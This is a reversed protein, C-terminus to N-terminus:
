IMLQQSVQLEQRLFFYHLDFSHHRKYSYVDRFEKGAGIVIVGIDMNNGDESPMTESDM